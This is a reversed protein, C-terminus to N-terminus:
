EVGIARREGTAQRAAEIIALNHRAKEGDVPMESGSALAEFTAAYCGFHGGVGPNEKM